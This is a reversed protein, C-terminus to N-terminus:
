KGPRRIKAAVTTRRVAAEEDTEDNFTFTEGGKIESANVVTLDPFLQTDAEQDEQLTENHNLKVTSEGYGWGGGNVGAAQEEGVSMDELFEAETVNLDKIETTHNQSM